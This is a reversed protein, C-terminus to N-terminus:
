QNFNEAILEIKKQDTIKRKQCVKMIAQYYQTSDHNAYEAIEQYICNKEGCEGCIQTTDFRRVNRVYDAELDAIEGDTSPQYYNFADSMGEGDTIILTDSNIYDSYLTDGTTFSYSIKYKEPTNIGKFEPSDYCSSDSMITDYDSANMYFFAALLAIIALMLKAFKILNHNIKNKM